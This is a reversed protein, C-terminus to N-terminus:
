VADANWAARYFTIYIDNLGTIDTITTMVTKIRVATRNLIIFKV